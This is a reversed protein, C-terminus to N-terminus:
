PSDPRPLRLAKDCRIFTKERVFDLVDQIAGAIDDWDREIRDKLEENRFKTM